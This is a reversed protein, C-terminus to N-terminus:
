TLLDQLCHPIYIPLISLQASGQCPTLAPHAPGHHSSANFRSNSSRFGGWCSGWGHLWDTHPMQDVKINNSNNMWGNLLSTSLTQKSSAGHQTGPICCFCSLCLRPRMLSIIWHPLPILFWFFSYKILDSLLLIQLAFITCFLPAALSGLFTNGWHFSAMPTSASWLYFLFALHM